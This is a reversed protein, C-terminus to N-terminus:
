HEEEPRWTRARDRKSRRTEAGKYTGIPRLRTTPRVLDRQNALGKTPTVSIKGPVPLRHYDLADIRLQDEM